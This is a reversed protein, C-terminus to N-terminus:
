LMSLTSARLRKIAGHVQLYSAEPGGPVDGANQKNFTRLIRTRHEFQRQDAKPVTFSLRSGNMRSPGAPDRESGEKQIIDYDFKEAMGEAQVYLCICPEVPRQSVFFLFRLWASPIFFHCFFVSRFQAHFVQFRDGATEPVLDPLNALVEPLFDFVNDIPQLIKASVPPSHFFDCDQPLFLFRRQGKFLSLPAKQPSINKCSVFGYVPCPLAPFIGILDNRLMLKSQKTEAEGTQVLSSVFSALEPLM